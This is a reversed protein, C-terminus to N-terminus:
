PISGSACSCLLRYDEPGIPCAHALRQVDDTGVAVGGIADRALLERCAAAAADALLREKLATGDREIPSTELTMEIV